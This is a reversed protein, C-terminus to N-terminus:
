RNSDQQPTHRHYDSPTATTCLGIALQMVAIEQLQTVVIEQAIRRLQENSGFRLQARAMDIAGQHHAIMMIAFDLDIDGTPEIAMGRMMREMAADNEAKFLAQNQAAAATIQGQALLPVAGVLLSSALGAALIIIRENM